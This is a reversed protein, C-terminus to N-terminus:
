YKLYKERNKNLLRRIKDFVFARSLTLGASSLLDQTEELNLKLAIAFAVASVAFLKLLKNKIM